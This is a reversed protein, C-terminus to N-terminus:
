LDKVAREVEAALEAYNEGRMRMPAGFTVRVRAPRAMKWKQHLVQHVDRLRVPIVPVELRAGIMGIGGRFAAVDNTNQRVGEPFILVSWGRGTLSRFLM